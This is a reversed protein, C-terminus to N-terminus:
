FVFLFLLYYRRNYNKLEFGISEKYAEYLNQPNYISALNFKEVIKILIKRNAFLSNKINKELDILSMKDILRDTKIYITLKDFDKSASLRSVEIYKSLEELTSSEFSLTPFVDRFTKM